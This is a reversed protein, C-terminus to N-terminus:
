HSYHIMFLPPSCELFLSSSTCLCLIVSQTHKNYCLAVFQATEFLLFQIECNWLGSTQFWPTSPAMSERFVRLSFRNWAKKQGEPIALLGQWEKTQLHMVETKAEMMETECSVRDIHRKKYPRWDHQIHSYWRRKVQTCRCFRKCTLDCECTSPSLIWCLKKPSGTWIVVYICTTLAYITLHM